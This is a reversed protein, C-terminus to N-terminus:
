CKEMLVKKLAAIEKRLRNNDQESDQYRQEQRLRSQDKYKRLNQKFLDFENKNKQMQLIEKKLKKVFILELM